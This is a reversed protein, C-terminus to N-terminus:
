QPTSSLFHIFLLLLALPLFCFLLTDEEVGCFEYGHESKDRWRNKSRRM